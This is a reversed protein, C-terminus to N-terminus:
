SLAPVYVTVTYTPSLLSPRPWAVSSTVTLGMAGANSERAPADIVYPWPSTVSPPWMPPAAVTGDPLTAMERSPTVWIAAISGVVPSKEDSKEM